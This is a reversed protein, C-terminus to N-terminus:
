NQNYWREEPNQNNEVKKKPKWFERLDYNESEKYRKGM